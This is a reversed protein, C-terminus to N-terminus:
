RSSPVDQVWHCGCVLLEEAGWDGCAVGLAWLRVTVNNERFAFVRERQTATNQSKLRHGGNETSVEGREGGDEGSDSWEGGQGFGFGFVEGSQFLDILGRRSIALV